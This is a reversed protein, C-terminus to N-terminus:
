PSHFHDGGSPTQFGSDNNGLNHPQSLPPLNSKDYFTKLLQVESLSTSRSGRVAPSLRTSSARSVEPESDGSSEDADCGEQNDDESEQSSSTHRHDVAPLPSQRSVVESRHVDDNDEDEFSIQRALLSRESRRTLSSCSRQLRRRSQIQKHPDQDVVVGRADSMAYDFAKVSGGSWNRMHGRKRGKRPLSGYHGGPTSQSRLAHLLTTVAPSITGGPSVAPGQDRGDQGEKGEGLEDNKFSLRDPRESWLPTDCAMQPSGETNTSCQSPKKQRKRRPHPPFLGEQQFIEDESSSLNTVGLPAGGIGALPVSPSMKKLNRSTRRSMLQEQKKRELEEKEKVLDEYLKNVSQVRQQLNDKMNKVEKLEEERQKILESNDPITCVQARLLELLESIETQWTAQSNLYREPEITVFEGAAIDLHMRIHKFSPRSTPKPSWCIQMLYKLGGPCSAPIPLNLAGSGVGYIIASQDFNDYPRQRTLLEWVLVGYSWIDVKESCPEGRIMEPAMWAVTGIMTMPTSRDGIRRSTGFDSIKLSDKHTVLINASKLDRHIIKKSHLFQMGMAIQRAWEMVEPPLIETRKRLLEYLSGEACYEM